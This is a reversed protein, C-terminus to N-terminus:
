SAQPLRSSVQRIVDVFPKTAYILIVTAMSSYSVPETARVAM